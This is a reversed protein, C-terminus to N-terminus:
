EYGTSLNDSNSLLTFISPAARRHELATESFEYTKWPFLLPPPM